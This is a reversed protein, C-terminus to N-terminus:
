NSDILKLEEILQDIIKMVKEKLNEVKEIKIIVEKLEEGFHTVDVVKQLHNKLQLFDYYSFGFSEVLEKFQNISDSKILYNIANFLTVIDSEECFYRSLNESMEENVLSNSMSIILSLYVGIFYADNKNDSYYKERMQIVAAAYYISIFPFKLIEHGFQTISSNKKDIANIKM